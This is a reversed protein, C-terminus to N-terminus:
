GLVVLETGRDVTDGVAVPIREVVGDRPARVV